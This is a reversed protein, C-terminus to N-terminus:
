SKKSTQAYFRRPQQSVKVSSCKPCKVRRTDHEKITMTLSFRKRCQDCRYDYTPM